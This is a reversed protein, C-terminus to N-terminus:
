MFHVSPRSAANRPSRVRIELRRQPIETSFVLTYPRPHSTKDHFFHLFFLCLNGNVPREDQPKRCLDPRSHCQPAGTCLVRAKQDLSKEINSGAVFVSCDSGELLCVELLKHQISRAFADM